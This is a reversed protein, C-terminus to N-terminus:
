RLIADNFLLFWLSKDMLVFQVVYHYDFEQILYVFNM